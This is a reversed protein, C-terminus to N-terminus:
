RVRGTWSRFWTKLQRGIYNEKKGLDTLGIEDPDLSHLDALVDVFSWALTVRKDLSSIVITQWGGGSLGAVGVRKPDANPHALLVDLGRKMALYFPALGSTGCLDLQNMAYHSNGPSHLQGMGIWEVNLAIMGRRAQNICRTQKYDAAKGNARDHGNVNMIVPVLGNNIQIGDFGAPLAPLEPPMYDNSTGEGRIAAIPLILDGLRAKKKIGGCKGLFLAAKPKCCGDIGTPDLRAGHGVAFSRESGM